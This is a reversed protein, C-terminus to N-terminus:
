MHVGNGTSAFARRHCPGVVADIENRKNADTAAACLGARGSGVSGAMQHPEPSRAQTDLCFSIRCYARWAIISLVVNGGGSQGHRGGDDEIEHRACFESAKWSCQLVRV